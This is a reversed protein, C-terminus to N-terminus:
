RDDEPGAEGFAQRDARALAGVLCDEEHCVAEGDDGSTDAPCRCETWMSVMGM